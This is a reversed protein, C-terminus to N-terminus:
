NQLAPWLLDQRGGLKSHAFPRHTDALATLDPNPSLWLYADLWALQFPRLSGSGDFFTQTVGAYAATAEGTELDDLTFAVIRDLANDCVGRISLGQTELLATTVVLPAAAHLQYHLAYKGRKTEQPLSGDDRAQCQLFTASWASWRLAADDGTIEGVLNVGLTAWGRLNGRKAGETAEEEWFLMQEDIRASLWAEIVEASALDTAFPRVNRYVFAFGAYRSGVSLNATFSGLDSLAEARAWVAMQALVCDARATDAKEMVRNGERVLDRIFDDIPKLAKNVEANSAADIKSRSPDDDVYRSGYDLAIVPKPAPTCALALTPCLSLVAIAIAKM